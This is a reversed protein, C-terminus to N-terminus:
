HRTALFLLVVNIANLLNRNNEYQLLMPSFSPKLGKNDLKTQLELVPDELSKMDKVHTTSPSSSEFISQYEEDNNRSNMQM